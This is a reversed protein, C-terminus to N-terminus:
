SKPVTILVSGGALESTGNALKNAGQALQSSGEALEVNGEAYDKVPGDPLLSPDVANQLEESGQEIQAAGDSLQESGKEVESAGSKVKTAGASVESAGDTVQKEGAKVQSAGASVKASGAQLQKGGSALKQAGEALGAQLEGLKQYAAIDIIEVIKANLSTYVTNAGTDTLKVAVPNTKMNVVYELKAECNPCHGKGILQGETGLVIRKETPSRGMDVIEM